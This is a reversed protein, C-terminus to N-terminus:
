HNTEGAYHELAAHYAINTLDTCVRMGRDLAAECIPFHDTFAPHDEYKAVGYIWAPVMTITGTCDMDVLPGDQKTPWYPPPHQLNRGIVNWRNEPEIHSKGEMINAAWDYILNTGDILVLPSTIGNPNAGILRAAMDPSYSVVDADIWLLYDYNVSVNPRSALLMNRARAVKSWPRVDGEMSPVKRFDFCFEFEHEPSAIQMEIALRWGTRKLTPNLDPRTPVCVLIKSM